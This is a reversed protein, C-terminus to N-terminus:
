LNFICCIIIFIAYPFIQKCKSRTKETQNSTSASEQLQHQEFHLWVQISETEGNTSRNNQMYTPNSIATENTVQTANTNTVNLEIIDSNEM